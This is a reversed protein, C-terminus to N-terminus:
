FYFMIFFSAWNRDSLVYKVPVGKNNIVSANLFTDRMAEKLYTTDKWRQLSELSQLHSQIVIPKSLNQYSQVFESLFLKPLHPIPQLSAMENGIGVEFGLHLDIGRNFITKRPFPNVPWEDMWVDMYIPGLGESEKIKM